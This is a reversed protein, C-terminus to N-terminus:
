PFTEISSKFQFVTQTENAVRKMLNEIGWNEWTNYWIVSFWQCTFAFKRVIEKKLALLTNKCNCKYRKSLVTDISKLLSLFGCYSDQSDAFHQCKLSIPM